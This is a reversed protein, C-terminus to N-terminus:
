KKEIELLLSKLDKAKDNGYILDGFAKKISKDQFGLAHAMRVVMVKYESITMDDPVEFLIKFAERFNEKETYEFTLKGM